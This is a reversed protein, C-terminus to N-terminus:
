ELLKIGRKRIELTKEFEIIGQNIDMLQNKLSVYDATRGTGLHPELDKGEYFEPDSVIRFKGLKLEIEKRKKRLDKLINELFAIDNDIM